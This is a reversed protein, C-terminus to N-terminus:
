KEFYQVPFMMAKLHLDENTFLTAFHALESAEATSAIGM